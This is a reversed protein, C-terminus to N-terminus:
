QVQLYIFLFRYFPTFYVSDFYRFLTFPSILTFHLVGFFSPRTTEREDEPM